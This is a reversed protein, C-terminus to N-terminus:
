ILNVNLDTSQTFCIARRILTPRIWDTSPRFLVFLNARAWPLCFEEQSGKFQSMLKDRGKPKFQFM